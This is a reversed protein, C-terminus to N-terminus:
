LLETLCFCQCPFTDSTSSQECNNVNIDTYLTSIILGEGEILVKFHQYNKLSCFMEIYCHEYCNVCRIYLVFM